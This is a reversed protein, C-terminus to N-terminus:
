FGVGVRVIGIAAGVVTLLVPSINFRELAAFSVATMLLAIWDVAGDGSRTLTAVALNFFTGVLLAIVGANVGKLFQLAVPYRRLYVVLRGILLVVIFAPLFVGVTAAIAAPIGSLVNDASATM